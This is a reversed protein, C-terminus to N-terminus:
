QHKAIYEKLQEFINPNFKYQAEVTNCRKCIVGRVKGTDHCHDQCKRTTDHDDSFEIGCCECHTASLYHKYQEETAKYRTCYRTQNVKDKNNEKWRRSTENCRDLNKLRWQRHYETRKGTGKLKATQKRSHEKRKEPDKYPM